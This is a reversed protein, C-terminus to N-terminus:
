AGVAGSSPSMVDSIGEFGGDSRRV